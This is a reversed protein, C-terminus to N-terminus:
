LLRLLSVTCCAQLLLVFAAAACPICCMNPHTLPSLICTLALQNRGSRSSKDCALQKIRNSAGAAEAAAQM